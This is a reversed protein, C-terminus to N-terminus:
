PYNTPVEVYQIHKTIYQGYGSSWGDMYSNKESNLRELEDKDQTKTIAENHANIFTDPDTGNVADAYGQDKCKALDLELDTHIIGQRLLEPVAVYRWLLGIFLIGVIIYILAITSKKTTSNM